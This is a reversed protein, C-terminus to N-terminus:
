ADAPTERGRRGFRRKDALDVDTRFGADVIAIRVLQKGSSKGSVVNTAINESSPAMLPVRRGCRLAFWVGSGEGKGADWVSIPHVLIAMAVANSFRLTRHKAGPERSAGM